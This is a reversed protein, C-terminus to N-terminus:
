EHKDYTDKYFEDTTRCHYCESVKDSIRKSCTTCRNQKRFKM